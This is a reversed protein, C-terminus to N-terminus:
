AQAPFSLPACGQTAWTPLSRQVRPEWTGMGHSGLYELTGGSAGKASGAGNPAGLSGWSNGHGTLTGLGPIGRTPPWSVCSHLPTHRGSDALCSQLALSLLANTMQQPCHPHNLTFNLGMLARSIVDAAVAFIFTAPHTVTWLNDPSASGEDKPRRGGAGTGAGAQAGFCGGCQDRCRQCARDMDRGKDPWEPGAGPDTHPWPRLQPTLLSCASGLSPPLM